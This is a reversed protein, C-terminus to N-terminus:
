YARRPAQSRAPPLQREGLKVGADGQGQGPRRILQDPPPLFDPLPRDGIGDMEDWYEAETGGMARGRWEEDEGEKVTADDRSM